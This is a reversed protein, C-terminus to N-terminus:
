IVWNRASVQEQYMQAYWDNNALLEFHTGKERIKGENLVIIQDANIITNLRHAIVVVTKKEMLKDLAQNIERENDVDLSSTTEDLLVIPADKLIARAISIRQKEGGSLTSGGEGVITDYRNELKLIFDHCNAAQCAAVVESHDANPKAIKINNLITDNFLYVEQFVCSIHKTLADPKVTTLNVGGITLKGSRVDWFRSILHIITSKGSGSPGILATTTGDPIECYINKLVPVGNEYSFSVDELQIAHNAGDLADVQYNLPKASLVERLNDASKAIFKMQPYLMGIAMLQGSISISLILVAIFSEPSSAENTLLYTGWVLAVPIIFSVITSFVMVYPILSLEVKIASKKLDNFSQDLRQFKAGSLQYLKFTKIGNIYEVVRSIVDNIKERHTGALKNGKAGGVILLPLAVLIMIVIILAFRVDIVVAAIIGITVMFFAKFFDIFNHTLVQEFDAIDTTFNSTLKGISNQNFFGSNLGRVHDALQIRLKTVIISGNIQMSNYTFRSLFLRVVFVITLFFVCQIFFDRTFSREVLRVIGLIMVGYFFMNLFADLIALLLPKVLLKTQEGIIFQINKIIQIM